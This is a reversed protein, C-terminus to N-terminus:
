QKGTGRDEACQRKGSASHRFGRNGLNGLDYAPTRGRHYEHCFSLCQRDQGSAGYETKHEEEQESHEGGMPCMCNTSSADGIATLEKHAPGKGETIATNSGPLQSLRMLDKTDEAFACALKWISQERKLEMEMLLSREPPRSAAM